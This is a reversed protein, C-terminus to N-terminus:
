LHYSKFCAIIKKFALNHSTPRYYLFVPIELPETDLCIEELLGAKVEDVVLHEACWGLGFGGLLALMFNTSSDSSYSGTVKVKNNKNFAWIGTPSTKQFILCNHDGLESTKKPSGWKQIYSPAGYIKRRINFLPEKILGTEFLNEETISFNLFGDLIFQPSIENQFHVSIKPHEELFHHIHGMFKPTNVVGSIGVVIEGHASNELQNLADDGQTISELIKQAQTFYIRGAETLEIRRTTRELLPKKLRHELTQIQKTLVSTSLYLKRGAASFSNCEVVAVFGQLCSLFDLAM